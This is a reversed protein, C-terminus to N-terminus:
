GENVKCLFQCGLKVGGKAVGKQMRGQKLYMITKVHISVEVSLGEIHIGGAGKGAGEQWKKTGSSM